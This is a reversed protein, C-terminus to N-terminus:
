RALLLCMRALFRMPTRDWSGLRPVEFLANRNRAVGESTSLAYRFGARQVQAVHQPLYDNGPKGNPYAFLEVSEGLLHELQAKSARIEAEAAVDDLRALIPHNVTHAGIDILESQNLQRLQESSLMLSDPLSAGAYQALRAILSQREDLTQYKIQLTVKNAASRRGAWDDLQWSGLGFAQLDFLGAPAQRFIETIADNFMLGGDLFGPAVFVTAPVDFRQLVPLAVELNDAYGDDFTVAVTPAPLRGQQLEDLAQRLPAVRFYRSIVEMQVAFMAADPVDPLMPDPEPLVRHYILVMLGSKGSLRALAGIASRAIGLGIM